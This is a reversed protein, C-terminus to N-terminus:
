VAKGTLTMMHVVANEGYVTEIHWDGVLLARPHWGRFNKQLTKIGFGANTPLKPWLINISPWGLTIQWFAETNANWRHGVINAPVGNRAVPGLINAPVANWRKGAGSCGQPQSGLVPIMEPLRTHAVKKVNAFMAVIGSFIFQRKWWYLTTELWVRQAECVDRSVCPGFVGVVQELFYM